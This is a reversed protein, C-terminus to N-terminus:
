FKVIKAKKAAPKNNQKKASNKVIKAKKAKKVSM